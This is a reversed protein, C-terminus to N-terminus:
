WNRKEDAKKWNLLCNIEHVLNKMEVTYKDDPVKLKRMVIDYKQLADFALGIAKEQAVRRETLQKQFDFMEPKPFISNAIRIFTGMDTISKLIQQSMVKIFTEHEEQQEKSAGFRNEIINTCDDYVKFYVADFETKSM